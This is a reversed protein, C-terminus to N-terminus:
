YIQSLILYGVVIEMMPFVKKAVAKRRTPGRGLKGKEGDTGLMCPARAIQPRPYPITSTEVKPLDCFAAILFPNL